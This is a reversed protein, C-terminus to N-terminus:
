RSARMRQLLRNLFRGLPVAFIVSLIAALVVSGLMLIGVWYFAFDPSPPRVVAGARDVCQMEYSTAPRDVGSSGRLTTQSRIVQATSGDPCLLPGMVMRAVGDAGVTGTVGAIGGALPCLCITLMGFILFGTVCGISGSSPVSRM